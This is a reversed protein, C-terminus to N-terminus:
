ETVEFSELFLKVDSCKVKLEELSSTTDDTDIAFSVSDLPSNILGEVHFQISKYYLEGDVYCEEVQVTVDEKELFKIDFLDYTKASSNIDCGGMTGPDGTQWGTGVSVYGNLFDNRNTYTEPVKFTAEASKENPALESIETDYIVEWTSPIMVTYGMKLNYEIWGEYPDVTEPENTTTTTESSVIDEDETQTTTSTSSSSTINEEKGKNKGLMFAGIGVISILALICFIALIIILAKPDKNGGVQPPTQVPITTNEPMSILYYILQQMYYLM